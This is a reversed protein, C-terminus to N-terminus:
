LCRGKPDQDQVPRGRIEESALKWCAFHHWREQGIVEEGEVTL